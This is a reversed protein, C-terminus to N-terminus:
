WIGGCCGGCGDCGVMFGARKPCAARAPPLLPGRPRWSFICPMTPSSWASMILGVLRAMISAPRAAEVPSVGVPKVGVVPIVGSV